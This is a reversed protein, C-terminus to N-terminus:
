AGERVRAFQPDNAIADLPAMAVDEVEFSFPASADQQYVTRVYGECEDCVAIRHSDDGEVYLLAPPEPEANRVARLARARLEMGDRM